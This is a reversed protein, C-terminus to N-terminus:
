GAVEELGEIFERRMREVEKPIFTEPDVGPYEEMELYYATKAWLKFSPEMEDALAEKSEVEHPGVDGYKDNNNRFLPM